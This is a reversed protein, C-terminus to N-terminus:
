QQHRRHEHPKRCSTGIRPRLAEGLNNQGLLRAIAIQPAACINRENVLVGHKGGALVMTFKSVPADPIVNFTGRLGGNHSDIQGDIVIRIGQGHLVAVLDPLAHGYGTGLYVPGSMPVGLLPTTATAHGYASGPPCTDAELRPRTCVTQIHEQALFETSPLTVAAKGINADGPRPTVVARLSPFDGRKTGGRLRLSLKPAFGLSPCNAVQFPVTPTASADVPNTFPAASGTLTSSVTLPDCSTPNITLEHRSIYVRVDRLHIPIGDIIHPIPDSGSSDISVQATYPDVKIASRVIVTGLDFPGVLASDIAVV